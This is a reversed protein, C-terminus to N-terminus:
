CSAVTWGITADVYVLHIQAGNIAVTLDEALSVIKLGNRAVTLANTETTRAMDRIYIENGAVPAAPLTITFAGGSTNALLRDGAIATYNATKIAWASTSAYTELTDVRSEVLDIATQVNTSALGSTANSYGIAAAGTTGTVNAGLKAITVSAAALKATTIGLDKVQLPNGAGAGLEITSNDVNVSFVGSAVNLGNTNANALRIDFGVKSLGTSATTAEFYKKTWTTAGFLYLGDTEDDVAVFSGITASEFTYATNGANRVAIKGDQGAFVGTAVSATTDLGVLYRANAVPSGPPTTTVTVVSNKWEFNQILSSLNEAYVELSQLATKVTVNDAITTGTFTGLNVANAAVGSLTILNGIKTEATDVRGEVEDIAAQVTVASLGSAGNSFSVESAAIALLTKVQSATLATISGGTIRGVITQEAVTLAVPTNASDAKLITNAGYLSKSVKLEVETELAQLAAKVTVNDPITVGTFTGLSTANAAVGSLTILNGIKTETTDLRAEIEDIAAQVTIATLGSSGNAYTIQNAGRLFTILNSM